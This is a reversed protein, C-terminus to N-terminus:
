VSAAGRDGLYLAGPRTLVAWAMCAIKNALAVVLIVGRGTLEGPERDFDHLSL